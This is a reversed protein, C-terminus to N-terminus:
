SEAGEAEVVLRGFELTSFVDRIASYADSGIDLGDAFRAIMAARVNVSTAEQGLADTIQKLRKYREWGGKYEVVLSERTEADGFEAHLALDVRYDGKGLQPIALGLSRAEAAAQRGSGDCRVILRFLRTQRADHFADAIAQFVQAPAGERSVVFRKKEAVRTGCTCPDNGCLPCVQKIIEEGKIKMGVRAAEEPTYLVADESIQVMPAPSSPKYGVGEVADFYVWAGGAVGGKITKKLQNVDMLMKLGIRKAFERRLDETSLTHQGHPWAKAKVFAAPMPADDATLVKDLQRLVRLVVASQDKEVDGQDQPPLTERGLGDAKRSTDGSPYYLYRYARTIAVRVDLEAAGQMGKLKKRQEDSFEALREADGVIRVIALYRQAVDIMREVQDQDAILFLVNNKHIRYNDATGAHTFLKRVLEPIESATATTTAADYHVIALKPEGADDDLDAAEAPFPVPRFIGKKWLIRTRHDLEEKARVRGIMGVEDQVVKELSPETKFRYRFGDWHLYWCATGPEGKEEALMLALARRVLQPDDDPELVALFLDAPEVGTAIGQSLSHLFVTTATRRAYPPRSAELFQRDIMQCHAESGRRPSVIDAEIVQKFQPRELRSSLDNAIEGDGLDLHHPAILYADKSREQWMTRVVRALLRLAGRTKQFNPITSTKRNLTTLLEPHFPYDQQIEAAYEARLARGPLDVGREVTRAYTSAFTEAAERAAEQDISKFLRHTVIASIETEGTPTIVREQRAAIRRAEELEARLEETEGGFADAADALTVVVSVKEKSVAFEILSMLFAVTQEALDSKRNPTPIAKAVRLYRAVEDLMVLAPGDGLLKELVQTGPATRAEDSARLVEYGKPGGAQWALEGWLTLTRVEGHDIGNAPDMDSGVIGVTLWPKKPLWETPVLGAPLGSRRAQALHYLAILNHTKGGGFSTELRIFPSSAPSAGSLRGVVESVLTKLGETPFTNEFFTKADGYVKDATGEIVDRLRAAFMEDRLEGQLVESRPRCTEFVTKM